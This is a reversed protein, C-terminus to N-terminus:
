KEAQAWLRDFEAKFAAAIAPDYIILINENNREEANRSFNFSGLMVISEDIIFFKHHMTYSNGDQRVDVRPRASTLANWGADAGAAIQRTEFVGQVTLGDKVKQKLVETFDERTFSFAAFYISSRASKLVEEINAAIGGRPSFYNRVRVGDITLDPNPINPEANNFDKLTFMHEFQALYNQALAASYIKIYHNNNRYADNRTFNMSGTWVIARDIIVFKNHMFPQRNDPVVPVNAQLIKQTAEEKLYDSDTVVRVNVGREHARIIAEALPEWDIEYVAVELTSQAEDISQIVIDPIGGRPNQATTQPTTFYLEYWVEPQTNIQGATPASVQNAPTTDGEGFDIGFLASAIFLVVLIALGVLTLGLSSQSKRRSSM